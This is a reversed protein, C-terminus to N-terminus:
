NQALLSNRARIEFGVAGVRSTPFSAAITSVNVAWEAQLDSSTAENSPQESIETFGAGPTVSPVNKNVGYAGYAVNNANALAALPVSLATAADRM